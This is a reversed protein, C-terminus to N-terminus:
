KVIEKYYKIADYTVTPVYSGKKELYNTIFELCYLMAKDLSQYAIRRAENSATTGRSPEIFDSIYIIKELSSMNPRGLTHNKIANLIDEDDIGLNKHVYVCGAYAHYAGKPLSDFVEMGWEDVILKKMEEDSMYKAIDHLSAAIRAKNSDLSYFTALRIADNVVGLTHVYRTEKVMGKVIPLYDKTYDM